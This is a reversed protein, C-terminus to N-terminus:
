KVYLELRPGATQRRPDGVTSPAAARPEFLSATTSPGTPPALAPDDRDHARELPALALAVGTSSEGDAVVAVGLEDRARARWRQVLDRVDLRVFAGGGPGVRTIAAGVEEIHPQRAWSLSRADWAGVVRAAHLPVVAPDVDVDPARELLLYAELVRVEPALPAAFRLFVVGPQGARGLRAVATTRAGSDDGRQVYGVDIPDVLM